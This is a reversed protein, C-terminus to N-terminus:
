TASRAISMAKPTSGPSSGLQGPILVTWYKKSHPALERFSHTLYLELKNYQDSTNGWTQSRYHLWQQSSDGGVLALTAM